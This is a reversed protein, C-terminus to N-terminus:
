LIPRTWAKIRIRPKTWIYGIPNRIVPLPEDSEYIHADGRYPEHEPEEYGCDDGIWNSNNV